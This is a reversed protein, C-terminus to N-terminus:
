IGEPFTLKTNEDSDGLDTIDELWINVFREVRADSFNVFGDRLYIDEKEAGKVRGENNMEIMDAM